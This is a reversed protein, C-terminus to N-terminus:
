NPAMSLVALAAFERARLRRRQPASLGRLRSRDGAETRKWRRARDLCWIGELLGQRRLIEHCGAIVGHFDNAADFIAANCDTV